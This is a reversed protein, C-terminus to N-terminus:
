AMSRASPRSSAKARSSAAESALESGAVVALESGSGAAHFGDGDMGAFEQGAGVGLQEGAGGIEVGADGPAVAADSAEPNVVAVEVGDGVRVQEVLDEDGPLFCKWFRAGVSGQFLHDPAAEDAELALFPDVVAADDLRTEM